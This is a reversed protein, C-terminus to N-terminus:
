RTTEGESPSLLGLEEPDVTVTVSEWCRWGPYTPSLLVAAPRPTGCSSM